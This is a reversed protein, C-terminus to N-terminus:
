LVVTGRRIERRLLRGIEQVDVTSNGSPQLTINFDGTFNNVAGGNAFTPIGSNMAVLQSYFKRTAKANMVYEGPSLLALVSDTGRRVMGGFAHEEPPLNPVIPSPISMSEIINSLHNLASEFNSHADKASNIKDTLTEFAKSVNDSSTIAKKISEPLTRLFDAMVQETDTIISRMAQINKDLQEPTMGAIAQYTEAELKRLRDMNFVQGGYKQYGTLGQQKLVLYDAYGTKGLIRKVQGAFTEQATIRLAETDRLIEKRKQVEDALLKYRNKFNEEEQKALKQVGEIQRKQIEITLAVQEEKQATILEQIDIDKSAEALSSYGRIRSITEITEAYLNERTKIEEELAEKTEIKLLDTLKKSDLQKKLNALKRERIEYIVQEDTYKKQSIVTERGLKKYSERQIKIINRIANNAQDVSIPLVALDALQTELESITKTYNEKLLVRQKKIDSREDSRTKEQQKRLRTDTREYEKREKSIEKEIREREKQTEDTIRKIDDAYNLAKKFSFEMDEFSTSEKGQLILRKIEDRLISIKDAPLKGEIDIAIEREQAVEKLDQLAKTLKKILNETDNLNSKINELAAKLDDDVNDMINKISDKINSMFKLVAVQSSELYALSSAASKLFVQKEETAAKAAEDLMKRYILIREDALRKWNNVTSKVLEEDIIKQRETLVDVVAILTGLASVFAVLPHAKIIPGLKVIQVTLAIFAPILASKISNALAKINVEFGGIAESANALGKVIDYGLGVTLYNRIKQSEIQISKGASEFAIKSAKAYDEVSNKVLETTEAVRQFGKESTLVAAGAYGRINRFLEALGELGDKTDALRKIFELLGYTQIGTEVSTVGIEEIAEKMDDSPKLLQIMIQRLNTLSRSPLISRITLESISALVEDLSVGLIAGTSAVDGIINGLDAMQIRGLDITRFLKASLEETDAVSLGYANMIGSLANVTDAMTSNTVVALKQAQTMFKIAETGEGIQNSVAEYTAQAVDMIPLGMQNSLDKIAESWQNFSLQNNQSITRIQSIKIQFDAAARTAEVLAGTIAYLGRYILFSEFIRIAMRWTFNLKRANQIAKQMEININKVREITTKSPPPLLTGSPQIQSIENIGTLQRAQQLVTKRPIGALTYTYKRAESNVKEFSKAATTNSVITQDVINNYSNQAGALNKLGQVAGTTDYNIKDTFEM